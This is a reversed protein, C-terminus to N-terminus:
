LFLWPQQISRFIMRKIMSNYVRTNSTIYIYHLLVIYQRANDGFMYFSKLVYMSISDFM